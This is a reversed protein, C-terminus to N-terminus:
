VSVVKEHKGKKLIKALVYIGGLMVYFGGFWAFTNDVHGCCHIYDYLLTGFYPLSTFLFLPIALKYGPQAELQHREEVKEFFEM